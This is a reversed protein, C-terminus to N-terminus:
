ETTSLIEGSKNEIQSVKMKDADDPDVDELLGLVNEGLYITKLEKGDLTVKSYQTFNRGKIYYKDGIKVIEDITIDNVGMKLNTPKFPNTGGYIYYKGYLMDYGLAKLDALYTESNKHNQQYTFITGVQMDLMEMVHAALQYAHLNEDDKKLGMNDWILYQTGYLNGSELDDETMDLAPIHDGYMVLVTPEERKALTDTLGKIFQDMEYIQNVYYEYKWKLEESPAATVEIVPNQLVQEPPYKGHGQVSITYIMDRGDTSDLADTICETLVDDKAWNKPTKEVNKMYEVSTFTDFGM